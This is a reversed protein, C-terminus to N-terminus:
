TPRVNMWGDCVMRWSPMRSLSLGSRSTSRPCAAPRRRRSSRARCCGAPARASAARPPRRRPARGCRWGAPSSATSRRCRSRWGRRASRRVAEGDLLDALRDAGVREAVDREVPQDGRGADGGVPQAPGAEVAAVRDLQGLRASPLCTSSPLARTGASGVSQRCEDAAAARSVRQGATPVPRAAVGRGADVDLGAVAGDLQHLGRDRLGAPGLDDAAEAAEGAQEVGRRERAVSARQQGGGGVADAGLDGDRLPQALVVRDADVQDAHDDVVEHHAPGLRQEHGVVDGAAPRARASRRSRRAADGLAARRAPQASTPPSVASCGPSSPGSSYSTAPAPVPTTSASSSSPGRGPRGPVDDDRQGGGPEVGVAVGQDPM